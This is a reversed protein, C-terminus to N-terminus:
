GGDVPRVRTPRITSTGTSRRFLPGVSWVLAFAWIALGAVLTPWGFGRYGDAPAPLVPLGHPYISLAYLDGTGGIVLAGLLVAWAGRDGAALWRHAVLVSLLMASVAWAAGGYMHALTHAHVLGFVGDRNAAPTTSAMTVLLGPDEEVLLVAAITIMWAAAKLRGIRSSALALGATALVCIGAWISIGVIM